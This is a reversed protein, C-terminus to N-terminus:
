FGRAVEQFRRGAVFSKRALKRAERMEDPVAGKALKPGVFLNALGEYVLLAEEESVPLIGLQRQLEARERFLPGAAEAIMNRVEKISIESM